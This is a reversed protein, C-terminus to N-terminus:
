SLNLPDQKRQIAKQVFRDAALAAALSGLLPSPRQMIQSALAEACLPASTFGRAGLGSLVWLNQHHNAVTPAGQQTRIHPVQGIVPLHDPTTARVSARSALIASAHVQYGLEDALQQLNATDDAALYENSSRTKDFTAGICLSGSQTPPTLYGKHCVVTKLNALEWDPQVQLQTIQGRVPRIPITKQPLLESLEAGNALVLQNFPYIAGSSTTVRWNAEEKEIAVVQTASIVETKFGREARYAMAKDALTAVVQTPQVWGANPYYLAPAPLSIGAIRSAQQQTVAQVLPAPYADLVLLKRIRRSADSGTALELVGTLSVSEPALSQYLRQAYLFAHSYFESTRTWNAQLLPYVAGQPNGSAGSAWGKSPPLLTIAGPHDRLA